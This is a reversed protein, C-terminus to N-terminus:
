REDPGDLYYRGDEHGPLTSIFTAAEDHTPFSAINICEEAFGVTWAPKNTHKVKFGDYNVGVLTMTQYRGPLYEAFDKRDAKTEFFMCVLESPDREAVGYLVFTKKPKKKKM